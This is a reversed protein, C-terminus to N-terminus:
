PQIPLTGAHPDFALGAPQVLSGGTITFAPVPAASFELQKPTFEVLSPGNVNSVWLDGSADFALGAPANLSGDSSRLTVAPTPSGSEALQAASFEVVTSTGFFNGNAVWLDGATDFAIMLPGFISSSTDSLTVTPVPVGSTTLQSPTFEELAGPTTGAVWLNGSADFAIGTPAASTANNMGIAVPPGQIGGAALQVPTFELISNTNYNAVWLNGSADFALGEPQTLVGPSTIRLAPQPPGGAALQIAAYEALVGSEYAVWLNGHADFAGDFPGLTDPAITITAVASNGSALQAATYDLVGGSLDAIWLGGSGPRLAYAVEATAAPGGNTVTAPSGAVVADYGTGVIPDKTAVTAGVVTYSGPALLVFQTKESITNKFGGPGSIIVRPTVSSPATVTVILSGDNPGTSRCGATALAM